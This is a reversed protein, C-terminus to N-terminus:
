FLLPPNNNTFDFDSAVEGISSTDDASVNYPLLNRPVDLGSLITQECLSHEIVSKSLKKTLKKGLLLLNKQEKAM